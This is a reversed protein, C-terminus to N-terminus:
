GAPSYLHFGEQDRRTNNGEGFDAVFGLQKGEDKRGLEAFGYRDNDANQHSRDGVMSKGTCKAGILCIRQPSPM